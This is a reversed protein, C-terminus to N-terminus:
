APDRRYGARELACFRQAKSNRWRRPQRGVIGDVTAVGLGTGQGVEKMTFFREFLHALVTSAM